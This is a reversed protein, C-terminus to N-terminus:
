KFCLPGTCSNMFSHTQSAWVSGRQAPSTPSPSSSTTPQSAGGGISINPPWKSASGTPQWLICRQWCDNQDNQDNWQRKTVQSKYIVISERQRTCCRAKHSACLYVICIQQSTYYIFNYRGWCDWYKQIIKILYKISKLIKQKEGTM